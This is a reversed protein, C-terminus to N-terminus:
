STRKLIPIKIEESSTLEPSFVDEHGYAHFTEEVDSYVIEFKEHENDPRFLSIVALSDEDNEEIFDLMEKETEFEEVAETKKMM